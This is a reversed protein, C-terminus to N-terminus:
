GSCTYKASSPSSKHHSWTSLGFHDSHSDLRKGEGGRGEGGRGEGGRGEGGKGEGGRGEGCWTSSARSHGRERGQDGEGGLWCPQDGRVQEM